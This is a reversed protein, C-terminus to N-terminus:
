ESLRMAKVKLRSTSSENAMNTVNELLIQYVLFM